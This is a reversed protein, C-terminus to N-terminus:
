TINSGRMRRRSRQRGACGADSIGSAATSITGGSPYWLMRTVSSWVRQVRHRQAMGRDQSLSVARPQVQQVHLFANRLWTYPSSADVDSTSCAATSGAVAPHAAAAPHRRFELDDESLTGGVLDDSRRSPQAGVQHDHARV